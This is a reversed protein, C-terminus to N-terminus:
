KKKSKKAKKKQKAVKKVAKKASKAKAEKVAGPAPAAEPEVAPAALKAAAPAPAAQKVVPAPAPKPAPETETERFARELDDLSVEGPRLPRELVQYTLSGATPPAVPKVSAMGIVFKKQIKAMAIRVMTMVRFMAMDVKPRASNAIRLSSIAASAIPM